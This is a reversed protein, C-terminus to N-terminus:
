VKDPNLVTDIADTLERAILPKMVLKKIGAEQLRKESIGLSFGTCLVIPIDSRIKMIEKSLELGTLKPMTMDTLVLDFTHPESEFLSLAEYPSTTSVVTYGQHELIGRGSILIHKEDDVFLIKGSGARSEAAAPDSEIGTKQGEYKPFFIHFTTGEGPQSYVSVAGNMDKVIGHVVSLGMGTGEGREKTTFFPDFIKHIVAPSIGSGTDSIELKLYRGRKLEKLALDTEDEMVTESLSVGLVGGHEKMAHAGNTCLNMIIQHIQTPDAIATSDVNSFQNRIDITAPLSARLFKLTEKILPAIKVPERKIGTQRSFTLIQKVLERARLGANLIEDLYNGIEERSDMDMRALEAYGLVASLINNFDHAIGGALTGIAEMKYSQQLREETKRLSEETQKRATIDRSVVIGTLKGQIDVFRGESELWIYGRSPNLYRYEARVIGNSKLSKEFLSTVTEIDDPHIYEFASQGLVNDDRGLVRKFSSSIFTYKGDMDTTVIVDSINDTILRYKEESERLADEALKRETINDFVTVVYGKQPSYFSVSFWQNLANIYTEFREPVGTLAVNGLLKIVSADSEQIGPLVESAKKGIIDKVGALAEAAKNVDLYIYDVPVDQDFIMKCYTYGNLMNEFLSRYMKESKRLSKEVNKRETIDRAIGLVGILKGNSDTMPTKITDFLGRYGNDKFVLWEENSCPKGAKMAKRDNERFFDALEKDVFDYDTKGIIDTEKAGFLRQAMPNCLLYVGNADKLWVLDPITQMLTRIHAENEILTQEIRKRETIVDFAVVFHEKEMRYVSLSFWQKLADVFIEIKEPTGTQLVRNFFEFLKPDSQQIGPIVQSIKKGVVDELSTLTGFSKNVDIFILDSEGEQDTVIRCHALGNLMNEFLIRQHKESKRLLTEAKKLETVIDFVVVIFEIEPCYVSVRLWQKLTNVYLEAKESQGTSAVRGFIEFVDPDMERIGPLIDSVKKGVVDTLGTLSEFARNVDLFTFDMPVGLEFMMKCCSFGNLMNERLLRYRREYEDGSMGALSQHAISNELEAILKHSIELKEKLEEKTPDNETM